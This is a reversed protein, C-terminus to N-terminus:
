FFNPLFTVTIAIKQTSGQTMHSAFRM